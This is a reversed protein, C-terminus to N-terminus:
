NPISGSKNLKRTESKNKSAKTIRQKKLSKVKSKNQNSIDSYLTSLKSMNAAIITNFDQELRRLAPRVHPINDFGPWNIKMTFVTEGSETEFVYPKQGKSRQRLQPKAGTFELLNFLMGQSSMVTAIKGTISGKKWSAAYKGSKNPALQQIYNLFIEQADLLVAYNFRNEHTSAMSDLERNLSTFDFKISAVSM